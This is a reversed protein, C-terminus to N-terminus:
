VAQQEYNLDQVPIEFFGEEVSCESAARRRSVFNWSPRFGDDFSVLAFSGDPDLGTGPPYYEVWRSRAMVEGLTSGKTPFFRRHVPIFGDLRLREVASEAIEVVANTVSTGRYNKLQACLFVFDYRGDERGIGRVRLYCQGISGFGQFKLRKYDRKLPPPVTKM